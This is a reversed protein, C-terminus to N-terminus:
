RQYDAARQRYCEGDRGGSERDLGILRVEVQTGILSERSYGFLQEAASNLHQIEGESNALLMAVPAYELMQQAAALAPLVGIVSDNETKHEM